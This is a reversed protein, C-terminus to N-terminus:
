HFLARISLLDNKYRPTRAGPTVIDGVGGSLIWGRTTSYTSAMSSGKYSPYTKAIPLWANTDLDFVRFGDFNIISSFNGDDQRFTGGFTLIYGSNSGGGEGSASGKSAPPLHM